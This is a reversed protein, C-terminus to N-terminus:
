LQDRCRSNAGPVCQGWEIVYVVEIVDGRAQALM